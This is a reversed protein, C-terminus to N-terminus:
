AFKIEFKGWNVEQATTVSKLDDLFPELDKKDKKDLTLIVPVKLSKNNQSKCKRM